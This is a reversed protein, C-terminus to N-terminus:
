TDAQIRLRELFHTKDKEPAKLYKQFTDEYKRRNINLAGEYDRNCLHDIEDKRQKEEAM